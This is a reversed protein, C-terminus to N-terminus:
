PLPALALSRALVPTFPRSDGTGSVTPPLGLFRLSSHGATVWTCWWHVSSPLGPTLRLWSPSTPSTPMRPSAWFHEPPSGLFALRKTLCSTFHAGTAPYTHVHIYAHGRRNTIDPFGVLQLLLLSVGDTAFVDVVRSSQLIAFPRCAWFTIKAPSRKVQRSEPPVPAPHSWSFSLFHPVSTRGTTALHSLLQWWALVGPHRPLGAADRKKQLRLRVTM